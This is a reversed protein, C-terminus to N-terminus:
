SLDEVLVALPEIQARDTRIAPPHHIGAIVAIGVAVQEQNIYRSVLQLQDVDCRM